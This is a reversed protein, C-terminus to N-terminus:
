SMVVQRVMVNDGAEASAGDDDDDGDDDKNGGEGSSCM